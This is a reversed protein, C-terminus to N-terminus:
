VAVVWGALCLAAAEAARRQPRPAKHTGGLWRPDPVPVSRSSRPGGAARCLIPTAHCHGTRHYVAPPAVETSAFRRPAATASGASAGPKGTASIRAFSLAVVDFALIMAMALSLIIACIDLLGPKM